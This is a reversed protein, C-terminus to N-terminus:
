NILNWFIKFLFYFHLVSLKDSDDAEDQPKLSLPMEDDEEEEEEDSSEELARTYEQVHELRYNYYFKDLFLTQTQVM